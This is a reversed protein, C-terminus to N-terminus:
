MSRYKPLLEFGGADSGHFLASAKVRYFVALPNIPPANRTRIKRIEPVTFEEIIRTVTRRSISSGTSNIYSCIDDISIILKGNKSLSIGHLVARIFVLLNNNISRNTSTKKQKLFAFIRDAHDITIQSQATEIMLEFTSKHSIPVFTKWLYDIASCRDKYRHEAGPLSSALEKLQNPADTGFLEYAAHLGLGTTLFANFEGVQLSLGSNWISSWNQNDTIKEAAEIKHEIQYSIQVSKQPISTYGDAVFKEWSNDQLANTIHEPTSWVLSKKYIDLQQDIPFFQGTHPDFFASLLMTRAHRGLPIRLYSNVSCVDLKALDTQLYNHLKRWLIQASQLPIPAPLPICIQIGKSGSCFFFVPLGISAVKDELELALKIAQDADFNAFDFDIRINSIQDLYQDSLAVSTRKRNDVGLLINLFDIERFSQTPHKIRKEQSLQLPIPDEEWGAIMHVWFPPFGRNIRYEEREGIFSFLDNIQSYSQLKKFSAVRRKQLKLLRAAETADLYELFSQDNLADLNTIFM